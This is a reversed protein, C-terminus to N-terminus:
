HNNGAHGPLAVPIILGRRNGDKLYGVVTQMTAPAPNKGALPQAVFNIVTTSQSSKVQIDTINQDDPPEPFFDVSDPASHSWTITISGPTSLDVGAVDSNGKSEAPLQAVWEDFLPANAIAPNASSGLSLNVIAKGPKCVDSCVLWAVTAQFDCHFDAPLNAPPTVRTLLVVTNEYGFAIINGPQPFRSPTPFELPGATFGDPLTLKVRTPLGADGPNKWYVHWGPDITLHVGVWFPKGTQLASVNSLLEAQVHDARSLSATACLVIITCLIKRLLM